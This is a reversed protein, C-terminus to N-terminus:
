TKLVRAPGVLLLVRPAPWLGLVAVRGATPRPTAAPATHTVSTVGFFASSFPLPGPLVASICSGCLFDDSM